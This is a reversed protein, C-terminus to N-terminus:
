DPKIINLFKGARKDGHLSLIDSGQEQKLLCKELSQKRRIAECQEATLQWNTEEKLNRALTPYDIWM